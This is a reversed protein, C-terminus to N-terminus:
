WSSGSGSSTSSSSTSPAAANTSHSVAAGKSSLALWTGGFSQIGEGNAQGAGSDGAFLYLPHGNLTVQAIGKHRWVSLKGAVGKATPKSATVAPWASLCSSTTCEPHKASDGTLLYVTRGSGTVLVMQSRGGVNVKATRLTTARAASAVPATTDAADRATATAHAPSSGGCAAIALSGAIAAAAASIKLTSRNM